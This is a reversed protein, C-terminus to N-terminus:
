GLLSFSKHLCSISALCRNKDNKLHSIINKGRIKLFNFHGYPSTNQKHTHKKKRKRLLIHPSLISNRAEFDITCTTSLKPAFFFILGFSILLVLSVWFTSNIQALFLLMPFPADIPQLGNPSAWGQDKGLCLGVLVGSSYGM